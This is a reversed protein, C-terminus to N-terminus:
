YVPVGYGLINESGVQYNHQKCANSSNGEITYVMKNKTTEVIGVHDASGDSDWDFFIITGAAPSYDRGQWQSHNKFWAVGDTCLSFKPIVGSKIYGCQNACWSVFCACWSVRSSFGYWRWYPEGGVNGLQSRAVKVIDGDGTSSSTVGSLLVAWLDENKDSLLQSMQEKQSTKFTYKEAMKEANTHTVTIYLYKKTVEKKRGDEKVTEKKKEVRHSIVNMKWFITRLIEKKEEDLTVVEQPNEVDTNTKVAYVSIVEKWSAKEGSMELVDHKNDTKIKEIKGQYEADIEEVVESITQGNETSSEGSFFIGFPSCIFLGIIMVFLIIVISVTGGAAIMAILSKVAILLRRLASKVAKVARKTMKRTEKETKRAAKASKKAEKAAKVAARQSAKVTQKSTKIVTKNTYCPTKITKPNQKVMGKTKNSEVLHATVSEKTKISGKGRSIETPMPESVRVRKELTKGAQRYMQQTVTGAVNRTVKETGEEIKDQAYAVSNGEREPKGSKVSEKTKTRVRDATSVTKELVKINRQVTRTKINEAM